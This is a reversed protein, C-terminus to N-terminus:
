FFVNNNKAMLKLFYQLNSKNMGDCVYDISSESKNNKHISNYIAIENARLTIEKIIGKNIEYLEKNKISMNNDVITDDILEDLITEFEDANYNFGSIQEGYDRAQTVISPRYGM